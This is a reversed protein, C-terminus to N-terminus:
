LGRIPTLEVGSGGSGGSGWFKERFDMEERLRYFITAVEPPDPTDPPIKPRGLDEPDDSGM